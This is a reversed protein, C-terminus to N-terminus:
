RQGGQLASTLDTSEQLGDRVEGVIEGYAARIEDLGIDEPPSPISALMLEFMEMEDLHSVVLDEPQASLGNGTARVRASIVEMGTGATMEELREGLDPIIEDSDLFVELWEPRAEPAEKQLSAIGAGIAKWDGRVSALRRFVPVDITTVTPRDEARQGNAALEVLCVTKQQRAEGFGIPLPSGSYRMMTSGGVTQPVHLHGLALYDFHGAFTGADVRLLSGVHLERVGDGDITKGGATFLHGMGVIPIRGGLEDRKQRAIGAVRGYHTQIGEVLKREKDAISEGSEVTRIDRDRLYPVACVILEPSGAPDCLTLIEDAPDDSVNGVVHIGLHKCLERPAGLFSPSDHNGATVVIHRCGTSAVRALFRYYQEQAANGPNGTDFIDGAVLLVDVAQEKLTRLLWDLFDRFEDLRQRGYLARGLHWDSTHLIKM